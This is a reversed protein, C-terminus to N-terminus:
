RAAQPYDGHDVPPNGQPQPHRQGLHGRPCCVLRQRRQHCRPLRRHHGSSTVRLQLGSGALAAQMAQEASMEGVVAPAQKGRVLAPELAIITGSQSAIRNLTAALSAHPLNFSLTQAQALANFSTLAAVLPLAPPWLNHV